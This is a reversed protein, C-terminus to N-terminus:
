FFTIVLPSDPNHARIFGDSFGSIVMLASLALCGSVCGSALIGDGGKGWSKRGESFIDSSATLDAM